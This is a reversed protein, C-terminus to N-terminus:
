KESLIIEKVEDIAKKLDINEVVFDFKNKYTLEEKAIQLRKEIVERSDKGRKELRKKIEELPVDIFILKSESILTKLTLAGQVDVVFLVDKEKKILNNLDSKLSGYYNDYVKAYEILKNNSIFKEFEEKSVFNYDQGNIEGERPSRTTCTIVKKLTPIQKLLNSAITTKGAGSLGSIVFIRGVM